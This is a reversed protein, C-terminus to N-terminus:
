VSKGRRRVLAAIGGILILGASAPEPVTDTSVWNLEDVLLNYENGTAGAGGRVADGEFPESYLERGSGVQDYMGLPYTGTGLTITLFPQGPTTRNWGAGIVNLNSSIGNTLGPVSGLTETYSGLPIPLSTMGTQNYTESIILGGGLQLFQAINNSDDDALLDTAGTFYLVDAQARLQAGTVTPFFDDSYGFNSVTGSIDGSSFITAL